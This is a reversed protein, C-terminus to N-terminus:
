FRWFIQISRQKTEPDPAGVRVSEIVANALEFTLEKPRGLEKAKQHAARRMEDKDPATASLEAELENIRRTFDEREQVYSANLQRFIADDLLGHAKDQTLVSLAHERKQLERRLRELEKEHVERMAEAQQLIETLDIKQADLYCDLHQQIRQLVIADLLKVPISRNPCLSPQYTRVRCRLYRYIQGRGYVQMTSGCCACYVKKALPRAVGTTYCPLVRAQRQRQVQEFEEISVIPEHTGPAIIWDKQPINLTKKSKYSAKKHRGQVLDGAYTRNALISYITGPTWLGPRQSENYHYFNIGHQKKYLTPNPVGDENLARVIRKAGYGALAMSFIRRVVAAAEPDIVLHNHDQPDKLYGYLPFSAIYQGSQRKHTLVTRVNTSLDELYWENVLGNIQRAKKNAMDDTDAHDVVALFRIGWEPFKGHLYKEVLEMDRTFRSQSKALVIDFKHESADRIMRNFAPRDRDAGSYDEDTYIDYIDYGRDMAYQILLSKQNQISESEQKGFPNKRVDDDEKSLRVYIAVKM